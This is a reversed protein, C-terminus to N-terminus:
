LGLSSNNSGSSIGAVASPTEVSGSDAGDIVASIGGIVLSIGVIGSSVGDIGSSTSWTVRFIAGSVLSTVM